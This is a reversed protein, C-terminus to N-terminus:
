VRVQKSTLRFRGRVALSIVVSVAFIIVPKGYQYVLVNELKTMALINGIMVHIVYVDTGTAFLRILASPYSRNKLKLALIFLSFALLVSGLYLDKSWDIQHLLFAEAISIVIFVGIVGATVKKLIETKKKRILKGFTFLPFGMLWVNRLMYNKVLFAPAEIGFASRGIGLTLHIMLLVGALVYLINDKINWKTVLYEIGYAYILAGLFWLHFATVSENFFLLPVLYRIRFYTSLYWITERYQGALVKVLVNFCLYLLVAGFYLKLIHVIKTKLKDPKDSASYYGSIMFFVPVAFRSLVSVLEGFEGYSRFHICVVMFSSIWKLCDLSNNRIKSHTLVTNDM